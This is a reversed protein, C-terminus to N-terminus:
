ADGKDDTTHEDLLRRVAAEFDIDRHTGVVDGHHDIDVIWRGPGLRDLPNDGRRAAALLAAALTGLTAGAWGACVAVILDHRTM